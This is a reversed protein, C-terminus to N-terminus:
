DLEIVADVRCQEVLNRACIAAAEPTHMGPVLAMTFIWFVAQSGDAMAGQWMRCDKGNIECVHDTPMVQFMLDPDLPKIEVVNDNATQKM